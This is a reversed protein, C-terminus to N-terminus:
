KGTVAWTGWAVPEGKGNKELLVIAGSRAAGLKPAIVNSTPDIVSADALGGTQGVGAVVETGQYVCLSGSEAEPKSATGPCQATKGSGAVYHVETETLAATLPIAFSISTFPLNEPGASVSWSGTETKGSPLTGDATWPSGEKGNEGNKGATGEKGEFGPAGTEGKAGAAGTPGQLGQPGAPGDKGNKGKLQALVSPKIQKTSTIVYKSTAYAGGSMALLLALTVALNMFTFRKRIMSFM